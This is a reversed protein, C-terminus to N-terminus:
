QEFPGVLNANVSSACRVYLNVFQNLPVAIEEFLTTDTPLQLSGKVSGSAEADSSRTGAFGNGYAKGASAGATSDVLDADGPEPLEGTALTGDANAIRTAYFVQTACGYIRWGGQGLTIKRTTAGITLKRTFARHNRAGLRAAIMNDM